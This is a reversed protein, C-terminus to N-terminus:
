KEGWYNVELVADASVRIFKLNVLNDIGWVRYKQGKYWIEGATASPTTSGDLTVYIDNDQVDIDGYITKYHSDQATTKVTAATLNIAASSVTVQERAVHHVIM